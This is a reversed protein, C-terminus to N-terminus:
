SGRVTAARPMSWAPKCAISSKKCACPLKARARARLFSIVATLQLAQQQHIVACVQEELNLCREELICIKQKLVECDRWSRPVPSSQTLMTYQDVLKLEDPISSAALVSLGKMVGALEMKMFFKTSAVKAALNDPAALSASRGLAIILSMANYRVDVDNEGLLCVLISWQPKGLHMCTKKISNKISDYAHKARLLSALIFLAVKITALTKGQLLDVIETVHQASNDLFLGRGHKCRVCNCLTHLIERHLSSGPQLSSLIDMFLELCGYM